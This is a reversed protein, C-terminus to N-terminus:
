AITANQKKSKRRSIIKVIVIIIIAIVAILGLVPLSSVFLVLIDGMYDVMDNFTSSIGNAMRDWITKEDYANIASSKAENLTINVTSFRVKNEIGKKEGKLNELQYIINSMEEEITIIDQMETATKLYEEMKRYRTELLDIRSAIDYYQDTTDEVNIRKSTVKMEKDVGNVFEDLNEVPIKLVLSVYRLDDSGKTGSSYETYVYGGLKSLKMKISAYDKDYEETIISMDVMYILMQGEVTNQVINQYSEEESDTPAPMPQPEAEPSHYDEKGEYGIHDLQKGCAAFLICIVIIVAVIGSLKKM